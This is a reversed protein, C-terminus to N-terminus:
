CGTQGGRGDFVQPAFHRSSHASDALALGNNAWNGEDGDDGSVVGCAVVGDKKSDRRCYNDVDVPDESTSCASFFSSDDDDDEDDCEAQQYNSSSSSSDDDGGSSFESDDPRAIASTRKEESLNEDEEEEFGDVSSSKDDGDGGNSSGSRSSESSSSIGGGSGISSESSVVAEQLARLLDPDNEDLWRSVAGHGAAAAVARAKLGHCALQEPRLERLLKVVALHGNRAAAVLAESSCGQCCCFIHTVPSFFEVCLMDGVLVM